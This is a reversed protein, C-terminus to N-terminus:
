PKVVVTARWTTIWFDPAVGRCVSMETSHIKRFRAGDWVFRPAVGCDAIGRAKDFSSLQRTKASWQANLLLGDVEDSAGGETDFPAAMLKAGADDSIILPATAYNYAGNQCRSPVMVLTHAADLRIAEIPFNAASAKCTKDDAFDRAMRESFHGVPKPSPPPVTIIPLAPPAPVSAAPRAGHAALATVTDVRKQQDDIYRMAAVFGKLSGVGALQGNADRAHISSHNRLNDYAATDLTILHATGNSRVFSIPAPDADFSFGKINHADTMIRMAAIANEGATRDVVLTLADDDGGDEPQMSVARCVRVNDCGVAWDSFTRIPSEVHAAAAMLLLAAIM